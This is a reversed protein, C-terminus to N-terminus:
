VTFIEIGVHPLKHIQLTLELMCTGEMVDRSAICTHNYRKRHGLRFFFTQVELSTAEPGVMYSLVHLMTEGNKAPCM